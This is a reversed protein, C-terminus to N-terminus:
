KVLGKGKLRRPRFVRRIRTQYLYRPIGTCAMLVLLLIVMFSFFSFRWFGALVPHGPDEPHYAVRITEGPYVLFLSQSVEGIYPKYEVTYRVTATLPGRFCGTRTKLVTAEAKEMGGLQVAASVILAAFIVFLILSVSFIVRLKVQENEDNEEYRASVRTRVEKRM